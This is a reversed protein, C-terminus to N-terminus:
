DILILEPATKKNDNKETKTISFSNSLQQLQELNYIKPKVPIKKTQRSTSPENVQRNINNTTKIIPTISLGPCSSILLAPNLTIPVSSKKEPTKNQLITSKLRAQEDACDLDIYVSKPNHSTTTKTTTMAPKVKSIALGTSTTLTVLSQDIASVKSKDPFMKNSKKKQAFSAHQSFTNYSHNPVKNIEISSDLCPISENFKNFSVNLSKNLEINDNNYLKTSKTKYSKQTQGIKPESNKNSSYKYPRGITSQHMDTKDGKCGISRKTETKQKNNNQKLKQKTAQLKQQLTYSTSTNLPLPNM